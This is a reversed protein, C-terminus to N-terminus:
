INNIELGDIQRFKEGKEEFIKELEKKRKEKYKHSRSQVIFNIYDEIKEAYKKPNIMMERKEFFDASKVRSKAELKKMEEISLNEPNFMDNYFKIAEYQKNNIENIINYGVNKLLKFLMDTNDVNYHISVNYGISKNIEQHYNIDALVYSSNDNDFAEKTYPFNFRIRKYVTKEDFTLFLLFMVDISNKSCYDWNINHEFYCLQSHQVGLIKM